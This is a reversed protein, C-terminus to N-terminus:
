RDLTQNYFPKTTFDEGLRSKGAQERVQNYEALYADDDIQKKELAEIRRILQKVMQLLQYEAWTVAPGGVIADHEPNYREEIRQAAFRDIYDNM